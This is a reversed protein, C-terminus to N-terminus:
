QTSLPLAGLLMIGEIKSSKQCQGFIVSNQCTVKQHKKKDQKSENEISLTLLFSELPKRQLEKRSAWVFSLQQKELCLDAKNVHRM